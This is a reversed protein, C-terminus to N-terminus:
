SRGWTSFPREVLNVNYYRPDLSVEEGLWGPREFRQAETELEIEAVVLGRNPGEFEDVEWCLGDGAPVRHRLKCLTRGACLGQLMARADDAPINYEFEERAIRVGGAKVSLWAGGNAVRVRVSVQHDDTLYGQELHETDVVDGRWADDLVLFKREIEM